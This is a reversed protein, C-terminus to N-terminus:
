ASVAPDSRPGAKYCATEPDPLPTNSSASHRRVKRIDAAASDLVAMHRRICALSEFIVVNQATSHAIEPAKQAIAMDSHLVTNM